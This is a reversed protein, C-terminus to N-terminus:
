RHPRNGGPGPGEAAIDGIVKRITLGALRTPTEAPLWSRLLSLTYPNHAPLAAIPFTVGYSLSGVPLVNPTGNLKDEALLPLVGAQLLSTKGRGAPGTAFTLSNTQWWELLLSSEDDRGRFFRQNHRDFPRSGPHPRGMISNM